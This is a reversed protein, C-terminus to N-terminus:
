LEVENSFYLKIRSFTYNIGNRIFGFLLVFVFIALISRFQFDLFMELIYFIILHYPLLMLGKSKIVAGFSFVYLLYKIILEVAAFILFVYVFHIHNGIILPFFKSSFGVLVLGAVLSIIITIIFNLFVSAHNFYGIAVAFKLKAENFKQKNNQNEM